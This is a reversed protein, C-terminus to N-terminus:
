PDEDADRRELVDRLAFQPSVAIRSSAEAFALFVLEVENAERFSM